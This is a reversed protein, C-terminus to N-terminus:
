WLTFAGIQLDSQILADALHSLHLHLHLHSLHMSESKFSRQVGCMWDTLDRMQATFIFCIWGSLGPLNELAKWLLAGIPLHTFFYPFFASMSYGVPELDDVLRQGAKDWSVPWWLLVWRYCARWCTYRV